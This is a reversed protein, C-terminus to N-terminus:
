GDIFQDIIKHQKEDVRRAEARKQIEEDTMTRRRNCTFCFGGHPPRSLQVIM